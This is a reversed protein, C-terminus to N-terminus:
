EVRDPDPGVRLQGAAKAVAVNKLAIVVAAPIFLDVQTADPRVAHAALALPANVEPMGPYPRPEGLADCIRNALTVVRDVHVYAELSREKSVGKASARIGADLALPAGGSRITAVVEEFRKAGGGLAIVAHRRDVIGIRALLGEDGLIKHLKTEDVANIEKLDLALHHVSVDAIQEVDRQLTLSQAAQNFAPRVFLGSQLTRVVEELEDLFLAPDGRLEIVKTMAIVGTSESPLASIGAAAGHILALMPEYMKRVGAAKEPLILGTTVAGAIYLGIIPDLHASVGADSVGIAWVINESPLGRLLTQETDAASAPELQQVHAAYLELAIGEPEVRASWQVQKFRRLVNIMPASRDASPPLAGAPAPSAEPAFEAEMHRDIGRKGGKNIPSSLSPESNSEWFHEFAAVDIWISLDNDAFRKLQHESWRTGLGPKDSVVTKVTDLDPGFVTFSGKTGAYTMRQRLTVQTFGDEAPQPNLFTLMAARDKTPLILALGKAPAVGSKTPMLVLAASGHDDLGSVIELAGQVLMYPSFPLGLRELLKALKADLEALDRVTIAVVAEAPVASLISLRQASDAVVPQEGATPQGS